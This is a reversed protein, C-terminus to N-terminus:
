AELHLHVFYEASKPFDYVKLNTAAEIAEIVERQRQPQETAIVFWMNLEHSREYNHAVEPFANVIAAIKEFREAPAKLAALTLAGGMRDAHYLPGFRTLIGDALLKQLRQLLEEEGIGLQAAAQSYPAACLPFGNQLTNIIRRDIDDM